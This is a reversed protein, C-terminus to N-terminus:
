PSAARHSRRAAGTAASQAGALAPRATAPQGDPLDAAARQDDGRHAAPIDASTATETGSSMEPSSRRTPSAPASRFGRSGFEKRYVQPARRRRAPEGHPAGPQRHQHERTHPNQKRGGADRAAFLVGATVSRSSAPRIRTTSMTSRAAAADATASREDRRPDACGPRRPCQRRGARDDVGGRDQADGSVKALAPTNAACIMGVLGAATPTM